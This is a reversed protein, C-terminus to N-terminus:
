KFPSCSHSFKFELSLLSLLPSQLTEPRVIGMAALAAFSIPATQLKMMGGIEAAIARGNDSASIAVALQRVALLVMWREIRASIRRQM